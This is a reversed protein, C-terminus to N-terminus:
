FLPEKIEDYVIDCLHEFSDKRGAAIVTMPKILNIRDNFMLDVHGGAEEIIVAAAAYDWCSLRIEFYLEVRGCAVLCLEYAATGLRRLDDAEKYVREIIRFCPDALSKDYLSMASCLHSHAFDRGSVKIPKGNLYAGEGKKASFMEDYYPQYVVGIYPQLDRYLAVSIASMKLDRTFNSTGDIPDVIWVYEADVAVADQEEGVFAAEPLLSALQSKLYEQVAIDASTVYNSENGKISMEFDRKMMIKSAEKVIETIQELM